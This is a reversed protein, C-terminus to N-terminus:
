AFSKPPRFISDLYHSTYQYSFISFGTIDNDSLTPELFSISFPEQFFIVELRTSSGSAAQKKENDEAQKIKRMFFCHGNCHLSPKFRNVCLNAAIYQHNLKFEIYIFAMAFNAIFTAFILLWITLRKLM